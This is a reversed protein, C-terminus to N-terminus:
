VWTPPEEEAPTTPSIGRGGRGTTNGGRGRGGVRGVMGVHTYGVQEFKKASDHKSFAHKRSKEFDRAMKFGFFGFWLVLPVFWPYCLSQHTVDVYILCCTLFFCTTFVSLCNAFLFDQELVVFSFYLFTSYAWMLFIVGDLLAASATKVTSPVSTASKACTEPSGVGLTCADEKNVAKHTRGLVLADVITHREPMKTPALVGQAVAPIAPFGVGALAFIAVLM